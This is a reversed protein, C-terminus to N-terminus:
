RRAVLLAEAGVPVFGAALFARVSAANGPAIQAWVQPPEGDPGAVDGVLHRAARALARGLGRGRCAPEVEVAVEWRGALGRGLLVMGGDATWVRVDDRYRLARRVRPHEGRSHEVLAMPPEGPLVAAVAVLDINNVRRGLRDALASLFPPCLPASLDGPPIRARVWREDVDAAVVSHGTFALVAAERPSPQAVVSLDGPFETVAGSAVGRLLGALPEARAGRRDVM